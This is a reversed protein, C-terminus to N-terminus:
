MISSICFKEAEALIDPHAVDTQATNTSRRLHCRCISRVSQGAGIVTRVRQVSLKISNASRLHRRGASTSHVGLHLRRGTLTFYGRWSDPSHNFHPALPPPSLGQESKLAGAITHAEQNFRYLTIKHGFLALNTPHPISIPNPGVQSRWTLGGGQKVHGSKVVADPGDTECCTTPV